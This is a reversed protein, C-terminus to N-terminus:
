DWRPPQPLEDNSRSLKGHPTRVLAKRVLSAETNTLLKAAIAPRTKRERAAHAM